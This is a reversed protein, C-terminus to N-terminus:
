LVYALSGQYPSEKTADQWEVEETQAPTLVIHRSLFTSIDDLLVTGNEIIPLDADM